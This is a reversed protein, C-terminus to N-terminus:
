IRYSYPSLVLRLTRNSRITTYYYMSNNSVNYPRLSAVELQFLIPITLAVPAIFAIVITIKAGKMSCYTNSKLPFRVSIYQFIALSVTLWVISNYSAVSVFDACVFFYVWELTNTFTESILARDTLYVLYSVTVFVDAVALAILICSTPGIVNKRSLVIVNFVNSIIGFACIVSAVYGHIKAYKEMFDLLLSEDESVEKMKFYNSTNSINNAFESVVSAAYGSINAYQEMIDLTPSFEYSDNEMKSIKALTDAKRTCTRFYFTM